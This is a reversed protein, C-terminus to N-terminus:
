EDEDDEECIIHQRKSTKEDVSPRALKTRAKCLLRDLESKDNEIRVSLREIESVSDQISEFPATNVEASRYLESAISYTGKSAEFLNWVARLDKDNSEALVVGSSKILKWVDKGMGRVMERAKLITKKGSARLAVRSKAIHDIISVRGLLTICKDACRNFSEISHELKTVTERFIVTDPANKEVFRVNIINVDRRAEANASKLYDILEVIEAHIDNYFPNNDAWRSAPDRSIATFLSNWKNAIFALKNDALEVAMEASM